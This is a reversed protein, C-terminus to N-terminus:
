APRGRVNVLRTMSRTWVVLFVVAALLGLPFWLAGAGGTFAHGIFISGALLLMTGVLLVGGSIVLLKAMGRGRRGLLVRVTGASLAIGAVAVLTLAIVLQVGSDGCGGDRCGDGAGSLASARSCSKPKAPGRRTRRNPNRRQDTRDPERAIM